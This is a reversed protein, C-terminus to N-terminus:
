KDIQFSMNRMAKNKLERNAYCVICIQQKTVSGDNSFWYLLDMFVWNESVQIEQSEGKQEQAESLTREQEAQEYLFEQLAALTHASLTTEEYDSEEM